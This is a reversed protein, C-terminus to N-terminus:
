LLIRGPQAALQRLADLQGAVATLYAAQAAREAACPDPTPHNPGLREYDYEVAYIRWYRAGLLRAALDPEAFVPRLTAEADEAWAPYQQDLAGRGLRDLAERVGGLAAGAQEITVGRVLRMRGSDWGVAGAAVANAGSRTGGVLELESGCALRCSDNSGDAWRGWPQVAMGRAMSCLANIFIGVISKTTAQLACRNWPGSLLIGNGPPWFCLSGSGV